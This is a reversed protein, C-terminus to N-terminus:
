YSHTKIIEYHLDTDTGTFIIIITRPPASTYASERKPWKGSVNIPGGQFYHYQNQM